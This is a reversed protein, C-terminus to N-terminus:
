AVHLRRRVILCTKGQGQDDVLQVLVQLAELATFIAEKFILPRRATHAFTSTVYQGGHVGGTDTQVRRVYRAKVARHQTNVLCCHTKRRQDYVPEACSEQRLDHGSTFTVNRQDIRLSEFTRPNGERRILTVTPNGFITLTIDDVVQDIVFSTTTRDHDVPTVQRQNIQALIGELHEIGDILQRSTEIFGIDM